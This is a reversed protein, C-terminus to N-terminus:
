RELGSVIETRTEGSFGTRVPQRHLRGDRVIWVQGERVATAPVLLAHDRQEVVINTEATM